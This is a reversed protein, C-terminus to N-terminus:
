RPGARSAALPGARPRSCRRSRTWASAGRGGPPPAAPVGCGRGLDAIPTGEPAGNADQAGARAGRPPLLAGAAGGRRPQVRGPAPRDLVSIVGIPGDEGLIPATMIGKPVYGTSRAFDAAFRPDQTSTRSWSRSGRRWCGAPSGATPRSGRARCRTRARARSRPSSSSAAAEDGGPDLRRPRRVRGARDGGAAALMM